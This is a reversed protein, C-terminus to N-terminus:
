YSSSGTKTIILNDFLDLGVTQGAKKLKEAFQKDADSPNLSGSPHNHCTIMGEAALQLGAALVLKIDISTSSMTGKSHMYIGYISLTRSLYMVGFQEQGEVQYKTFFQRFYRVADEKGTIKENVNYSKGRSVRVKVAPILKKLTPSATGNIVILEPEKKYKKVPKVAGIKYKVPAAKKVTTKKAVTKTKTGTLVRAM